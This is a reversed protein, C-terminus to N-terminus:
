KLDREHLGFVQGFHVEQVLAVRIADEVDVALVGGGLFRRYDVTVQQTLPPEKQNAVNGLKSKQRTPSGGKDGFGVGQVRCGGSGRAPASSCYSGLARKLGWVGCGM